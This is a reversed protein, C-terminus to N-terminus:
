RILRSLLARLQAQEEDSLANFMGSLSNRVEERWKPYDNTGSATLRINVVRRDDPSRERCIVGKEELRDLMRTMSGTDYQLLRCLDAATHASNEAIRRLITFQAGTLGHPHLVNDMDQLMRTRVTTLLYGISLDPDPVCPVTGPPLPTDNQNM